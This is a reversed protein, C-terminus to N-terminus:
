INMYEYGYVGYIKIIFLFSRQEGSIIYFYMCLYLYLTYM